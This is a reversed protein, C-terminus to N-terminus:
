FFKHTYSFAVRRFYWERGVTHLRVDEYASNSEEFSRRSSFDLLCILSDKDGFSFQFLPSLSISAFAGDFATSPAVMINTTLENYFLSLGLGQKVIKGNKVVMVYDNPSFKKFKM